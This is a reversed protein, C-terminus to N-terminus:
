FESFHQMAPKDAFYSGVLKGFEGFGPTKTFETHDNVSQWQILLLFVEPNEIGRHIKVDIAGTAASLIRKGEAMAAMFEQTNEPTINILVHETVM